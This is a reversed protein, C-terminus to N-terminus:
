KINTKASIYDIFAHVIEISQFAVLSLATFSFFVIPIFRVWM